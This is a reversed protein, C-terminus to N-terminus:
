ENEAKMKALIMADLEEDKLNEYKNTIEERQVPKGQTRDLIDKIMPIAKAPDPEFLATMVGKGAALKSYKEYIEQATMDSFMDKRLMPLFEEKFKEFEAIDDIINAMKAMGAHASRKPRQNKTTM